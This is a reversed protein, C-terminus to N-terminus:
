DQGAEMINKWIIQEDPEGKPTASAICKKIWTSYCGIQTSYAYIESGQESPGILTSLMIDKGQADKAVYPSGSDGARLIDPAFLHNHNAHGIIDYAVYTGNAGTITMKLKKNFHHPPIRVKQIAPAKIHTVPKDLRLIAIDADPHAFGSIVNRKTGDQFKVKMSFKKKDTLVNEAVHKATVIWSEAILGGSGTWVVKSRKKRSTLNVLYPFDQARVNGRLEAKEIGADSGWYKLKSEPIADASTSLLLLFLPLRKM